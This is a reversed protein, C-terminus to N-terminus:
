VDAPGEAPVPLRLYVTTGRGPESEITLTGGALRAREQMGFIGLRRQGPPLSLAQDVDFGPGDDEIVALLEEARRQVLLSVRTARPEGEHGAAHRLVNTLAEQTVRYVTTEIEPALRTELGVTELEVAIGSWRSWERAYQSLAAVLGLDDLATPRLTVALRHSKEAVEGALAELRAVLERAAADAAVPPSKALRDLGLLLSAVQQGADDHLDRSIRGREEEQATVLRRLLEQRLESMQTLERTREAVRQELQENARAVAEVAQRLAEEAQKRGTIDIATGVIFRRGDRLVGPSSASFSWHRKEGGRTIIPFEINLARDDGAFLRHMQERVADAGEGYARTLWADLTPVDSPAYGTLATWTRSIQLVEGDEAHLIVPIPAEEIARRFQEESERLAEEARKQETIDIFNVVVGEIRDDLSRYPLLRALFHRQGDTSVIEREVTGLRALVREADERLAPYDLQSTLHTLPRGVDTPIVHFLAEAAPTYRKIHLARDLFITGIDTSALFNQLDSNTRGIEEVRVRLEHNLTSLEENVSQLEEKSTELEEAASRQEENMAQLEENSAKLEENMAEYQEVTSRIQRQLSANEEELQRTVDAAPAPAEAELAGGPAEVSLEEFLVLFYGTAGEPAHVPRVTLRVPVPPAGSEALAVGRTLRTESRGASAATFLATRLDIRLDPHILQLLNRTPPGGAVRLFRGARDSLHVLDYDPGILVSPPAYLELLSRHLESAGAALRATGMSAAATPLPAPMEFPPVGTVPGFPRYEGAGASGGPGAGMALRPPVPRAVPRRVYLRHQKDTAGFLASGDTSESPGLLLYGGPRLAFHFMEFSQEQAERNLYILLNRCTILDLRSFPTDKLVDHSAFLVVERVEKRVQYAGTGHRHFWRRLREESVHASITEPFSGERAKAVADADMDTAFVQVRLRREGREAEELLLIALTYAEEGTACGCVWARVDDEGDQKERFLRPLVDRELAEWAEPDRFFQTVSILLDGVLAGVEAPHRRLFGLYAPLTELGCVQMRRGIRRLVTARKYRAFDHGTQIRVHALTERLANETEPAEDRQEPSPAAEEPLRMRRSTEWYSEIQAAMAAAPLVFDVLGSAIANRPMSDYQAEGPSQAVVLGGMEKVQRLGLTGDAGTGSFVVAAAQPGHAAALTRFFVDVAVRTGGGSELERLQLMGDQMELQKGPPIVYVHRREVQVPGTVQQVPLAASRSLLEALHSEHEPSLHLVVVYASGTEAPVAQFFAELAPISGASGGLGVVTLAHADERPPLTPEAKVAAAADSRGGSEQVGQAGPAPREEAGHGDPVSGQRM